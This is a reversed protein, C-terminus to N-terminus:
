VAAYLSLYIGWIVGCASGFVVRRDVPIVTYMLTSVIPRYKMRAIMIPRFDEIVLEWVRKLAVGKLVNILFVFLVINVVGAVTQDFLFKMMFAHLGSKRVRPAWRSAQGQTQEKIEAMKEKEKDQHHPLQADPDASWPWLSILFARLSALSCLAKFSCSRSSFLTSIEARSPFGPYQTELARQWYFNLPVILIGYSVFQLLALINLKFPTTNNRQDILQALINSLANLLTSQVFTVTLASPM